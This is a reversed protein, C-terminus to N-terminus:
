GKQILHMAKEYDDQHVFVEYEYMTDSPQGLSGTRGRLTGHGTWQDMRNKTKQSYPIRNDSLLTRIRSFDQMNTGIYVSKRNLVTIM